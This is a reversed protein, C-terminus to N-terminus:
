AFESNVADVILKVANKLEAEPVQSKAIVRISPTNKTPEDTSYIHRILMVKGHEVDAVVKQLSNEITDLPTSKLYEPTVALVVVPSVDDVCEVLAIKKNAKLGARLEARMLKANEQLKTVFSTDKQILELVASSAATVYPPLSASFVYATCGLRQFDATVTDGASFGGVGGLATSLSGVYADIRATPIGFHEPTGRGTKGIAGFGYSDDLLLRFKYKDCLELTKPLDCLDGTNKFVGETIVFRRAPKRASDKEFVKKLEEELSAMDNHKFLALNARSLICGEMVASNVSEDCVLYDGRSAYCSVLTSVTAYAFSYVVADETQLFEALDKEVTLHPKVTGYFARPGCSGVGYAMVTKRAVDVIAPNTAFSHYDYTALDLCETPESFEGGKMTIFCGNRAEVEMMGRYGEAPMNSTTKCEARFPESHFEALRREQEALSPMSAARKAKAEAKAAAARRSRQMFFVATAAVLLAALLYCVSNEM